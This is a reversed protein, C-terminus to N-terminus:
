GENWLVAWNVYSVVRQGPSGEMLANTDPLPDGVKVFARATTHFTHSQTCTRPSAARVVPVRATARAATALTRFATPRIM